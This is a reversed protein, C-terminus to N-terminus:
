DLVQRGGVPSHVMPLSPFAKHEAHFFEQNDVKRISPLRFGLWPPYAVHKILLSQVLDPMKVVVIM